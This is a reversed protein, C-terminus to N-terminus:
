LEEKARDSAKQATEGARNKAQTAGEKIYDAAKETDSKGSGLASGFINRM